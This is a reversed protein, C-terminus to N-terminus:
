FKKNIHISLVSFEKEKEESYFERYVAIGEDITKVTPLTKELGEFTLYEKLSKFKNIKKIEVVVSTKGDKENIQIKDGIKFNAFQGKNLRGEITKEGSAIFKFWKSVVDIQQM